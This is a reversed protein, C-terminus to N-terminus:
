LDRLTLFQKARVITRMLKADHEMRHLLQNIEKRESVSNSEGHLDPCAYLLCKRKINQAGGPQIRKFCFWGVPIELICCFPSQPPRSALSPPSATKGPLHPYRCCHSNHCFPDKFGNVQVFYLDLGLDMKNDYMNHLCGGLILGGRM